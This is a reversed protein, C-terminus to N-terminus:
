CFGPGRWVTRKLACVHPPFCFVSVKRTDGEKWLDAEITSTLIDTDESNVLTGCLAVASSYTPEVAKEDGACPFGAVVVVLVSSTQLPRKL